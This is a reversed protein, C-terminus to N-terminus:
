AVPRVEASTSAIFYHKTAAGCIRLMFIREGFRLAGCLFIYAFPKVRHSNRVYNECSVAYIGTLLNKIRYDYVDKNKRLKCVCVFRLPALIM